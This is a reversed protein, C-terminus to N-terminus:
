PTDVEAKNPWDPSAMSKPPKCKQFSWCADRLKQVSFCGSCFVQKHTATGFDRKSQLLSCDPPCIHTEFNKADFYKPQDETAKKFCDKNEFNSKRDATM